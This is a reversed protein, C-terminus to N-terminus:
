SLKLSPSNNKEHVGKDLMVVPNYVNELLCNYNNEDCVTQKQTNNM